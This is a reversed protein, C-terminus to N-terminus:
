VGCMGECENEFGYPDFAMQGKDAATSLDVMPLPRLSRHLFADCDVGKLGKRIIGDFEVVDAWESPRNNKMDRWYRNDHFPCGLCASKPPVPFGNRTLWLECDHRTLGADVLPYRNTAWKDTSLKMRGIEDLSIGIWREAAAGKPVREGHGVGLRRRVFKDLPAIKFERTCQRRLMAGDGSPNRVHAPLSAFQTGGQVSALTHARINGASVIHIPIRDQLMLWKLHQYVAAPEWGTDAFIACDPVDGFVGRMAMLLMATSQVGAGLSLVRLM